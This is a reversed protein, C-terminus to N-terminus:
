KAFDTQQRTNFAYVAWTPCGSMTGSSPPKTIDRILLLIMTATIRAKAAEVAEAHVNGTVM